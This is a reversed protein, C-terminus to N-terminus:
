ELGQEDKDPEPPEIIEPEESALQATRSERLIQRIEALEDHLEQLIEENKGYSPNFYAATYGTFVALLMIGGGMLIFGILRGATTTPVEDGYGVTTLTVFSWWVADEPSRITAAPSRVEYNLVMISSFLLLFFLAFTTSLVASEARHQKFAEWVNRGTTEQLRRSARVIRGIRLLRLYYLGPISSLLDMWGWKLYALKKPAKYLQRVFDYLFILAIFNDAIILIERTTEKLPVITALIVVIIAYVSLFIIFLEYTMNIASPQDVKKERQTDSPMRTVEEL